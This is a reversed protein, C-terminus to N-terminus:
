DRRAHLIVKAPHGYVPFSWRDVALIRNIEVSRNTSLLEQPDSTFAELFILGIIVRLLALVYFLSRGIECIAVRPVSSTTSLWCGLLKM